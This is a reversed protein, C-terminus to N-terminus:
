GDNAQSINLAKFLSHHPFGDPIIAQQQQFARIAQRTAPGLIGDAQEDIFGLEKLREQLAKVQAITLRPQDPPVVTLRGAGNIRDSLHGVSLAYFESRNWGMIVNFNRYVLFAPGTHGAPLVLTAQMDETPLKAGQATTMGLKQWEHLSRKRQEVLELYPFDEPLGVERGWREGSHWGLNKLFNAASTLADPVSNWLDIQGDGDGDVAFRRYNGPMFQTHGVAGAWSGVMESPELSHDQLLYFADFLQGTFFVKRREDCALTALADLTSMKGKYSGYNTELGWFAILYQAPVGYELTLRNLLLRHEEILTRGREIRQESVRTNFYNSFSETFEPQRRDLELVRPIHQLGPIVSDTIQRSLGLTRAKQQWDPYCEALPNAHLAPAIIFATCVLLSKWNYM